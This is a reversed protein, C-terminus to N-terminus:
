IKIQMCGGSVAERGERNLVRFHLVKGAESISRQLLQVRIFSEPLVMGRFRCSIASVSSPDALTEKNVLERVAQALTAIGFYLIDPLGVSHAFAPSTHIPFPVNACGEYIYCAERKIFLPVEWIPKAEVTLSPAQKLSPVPPLNESGRGQDACSVGRLMGGIYETFVPNGKSDVAPLKFIVHTGSKEPIVAAVEGSISLRDGTIMPRHLELHESYHVLQFLIESPYGLDIYDTINQIVPWTLAAALTPPAIIGEQREDDLYFPNPDSVAAAYNNISRQTVETKFEKMRLGVVKSDIQM